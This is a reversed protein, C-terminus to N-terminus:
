ADKVGKVMTKDLDADGRGPRLTKRQSAVNKLCQTGDSAVNEVCSGGFITMQYIFFSTLSFPRNQEDLHNLMHSTVNSILYM